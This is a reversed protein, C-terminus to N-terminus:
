ETILEEMGANILITKVKEKLLRPVQDFTKNGCMIEQAWLMAMMIEGGKGFLIIYLLKRVVM